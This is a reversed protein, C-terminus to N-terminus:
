SILTSFNVLWEDEDQQSFTHAFNRKVGFNGM